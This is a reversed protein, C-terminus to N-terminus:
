KLPDWKRDTNRAIVAVGFAVVWIVPWFLMALMSFLFRYYWGRDPWVVAATFVGGVLYGLVPFSWLIMLHLDM